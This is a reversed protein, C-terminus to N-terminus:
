SFRAAEPGARQDRFPWGGEAVGPRGAGLLREAQTSGSSGVGGGVQVLALRAVRRGVAPPCVAARAPRRVLGEAPRGASAAATRAQPSSTSFNSADAAWIDATRAAHTVIGTSLQDRLLPLVEHRVRNRLLRRDLNSEDERYSVGRSRLWASWSRMGSRSSHGCSRDRAARPMGALGRPGAGRILELLVTEAQDDRTHALRRRAVRCATGGVGRLVDYRLAPRCGRRVHRLAGRRRPRTWPRVVVPLGLRKPWRGASSRRRRGLRRRPAPPQLAGPGRAVFGACPRWNACCTPSPPRTRGARCRSSCALAPRSYTTDFFRGTSESPSPCADLALASAPSLHYQHRHLSKFGPSRPYSGRARVLQAVGAYATIKGRSERGEVLAAALLPM